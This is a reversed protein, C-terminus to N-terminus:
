STAHPMLDGRKVGEETLRAKEQESGDCWFMQDPECLEAVEEIWQLVAANSPRHRGIDPPPNHLSHATTKM